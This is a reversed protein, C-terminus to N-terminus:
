DFHSGFWNLFQILTQDYLQRFQWYNLIHGAHISGDVWLWAEGVLFTVGAWTSVNNFWHWARKM